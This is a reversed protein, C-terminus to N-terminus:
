KAESLNLNPVKNSQSPEKIFPLTSSKNNLGLNEKVYLTAQKNFSFKYSKEGLKFTEHDFEKAEKPNFHQSNEALQFLTKEPSKRHHVKRSEIMSKESHLTLANKVGFLRDFKKKKAEKEAQLIKLQKDKMMKEM